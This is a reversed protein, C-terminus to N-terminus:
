TNIKVLAANISIVAAAQFDQKPSQLKYSIGVSEEHSMGIQDTVKGSPVSRTLNGASVTLSCDGQIQEDHKGKVDISKDGSYKETLNGDIQQWRNGGIKKCDAGTTGGLGSDSAISSWILAGCPPLKDDSGPDKTRRAIRVTADFVSM